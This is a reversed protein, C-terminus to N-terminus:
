CMRNLVARLKGGGEWNQPLLITKVIPYLSFPRLILSVRFEKLSLAEYVEECVLYVNAKPSSWSHYQCKIIDHYNENYIPSEFYTVM